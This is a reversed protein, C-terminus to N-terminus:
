RARRVWLRECRGCTLRDKSISQWVSGLKKLESRPVEPPLEQYIITKKVEGIETVKMAKKCQDCHLFEDTRLWEEAKKQSEFGRGLFKALENEDIYEIAPAALNVKGAHYFSQRRNISGYRILRYLSLLVTILVVWAALLGVVLTVQRLIIELKLRRIDRELLGLTTNFSVFQEKPVNMKKLRAHSQEFQILRPKLDKYATKHFPSEPNHHTYGYLAAAILVLIVSLVKM